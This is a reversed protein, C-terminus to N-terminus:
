YMFRIFSSHLTSFDLFNIFSSPPIKWFQYAHAGRKNSLHSYLIKILSPKMGLEILFDQFSKVPLRVFLLSLCSNGGSCVFTSDVYNAFITDIAFLSFDCFISM